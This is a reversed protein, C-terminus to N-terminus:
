HETAKRIAAYSVGLGRLEPETFGSALLAERLLLPARRASVGDVKVLRRIADDRAQVAREDDVRAVVKAWCAAVVAEVTQEASM